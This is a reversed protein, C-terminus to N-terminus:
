EGGKAAARAQLGAGLALRLRWFLNGFTTWVMPSAVLVVVLGQIVSILDVPINGVLSMSISASRLMGFLFGTLVTGFPNNGALTAVTIGDWGYGPSFGMMFRKYLALCQIGGALGFIGGSIFMTIATTKYVNIGAQRAANRNAGISRIAFGRRTRYLFWAVVVVLVVSIFIGYNFQTNPHFRPLVAGDSVYETETNSAGPRQFNNKVIYETFLAGISNMMITGVALTNLNRGVMLTPIIGWAAGALFAALLSVILGFPFPLDLLLGALVAGLGGVLLQGEGGINFVGGTFAVCAGLGTLILPITYALVNMLGAASGFSGTLVAGYIRLPSNGTLLVVVGGLVLALMLSYLSNKVKRM